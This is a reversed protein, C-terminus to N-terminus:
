FIHRRESFRSYATYLGMQSGRASESASLETLGNTCSDDRVTQWDNGSVVEGPLREGELSGGQVM